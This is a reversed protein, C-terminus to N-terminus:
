TYGLGELRRRVDTAVEAEVRQGDPWEPLASHMSAALWGPPNQPTEDPLSFGVSVDDGRSVVLKWDATYVAKKEYGYRVGEVLLHRDPPAHDLLSVGSADADEVGVADLVTPAVDLLSVRGDASIDAGAVGLPVRTVAEYPAGGHGVCYAPRPDAFHAAHFSAQEWFGEGHDGVVVLLVDDLHDTLRAHHAALRNDVYEAAAGYLRRRHTRYREVTPTRRPVDQHRWRKVGPVSQDVDHATWYDAPPDVPEHLDSLHVYSFTREDSRDRVWSEHEVLVSEADSSELLRHTRFRGSLALFPVLMGFGGYTDYGAGALREPLTTARSAPPLPTMGAVSNEHTDTQRLAGHEHPYQGTLLSTVAPFTWTSPSVATRPSLSDLFPTLADDVADARLADVVVCVIHRPADSSPSAKPLDRREFARDARRERLRDAVRSRVTAIRSAVGINPLSVGVPPVRM